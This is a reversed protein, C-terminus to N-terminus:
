APEDLGLAKLDDEELYRRIRRWSGWYVVLAAASFTVTVFLFRPLLLSM